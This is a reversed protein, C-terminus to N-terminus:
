MAAHKRLTIVRVSATATYTFPGISPSLNPSPTEFGRARSGSECAYLIKLNEEAEIRDLEVQITKEKM